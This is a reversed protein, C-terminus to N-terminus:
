RGGSAPSTRREQGSKSRQPGEHQGEEIVLMSDVREVSAWSPRGDRVGVERLGFSVKRPAAWAIIATARM